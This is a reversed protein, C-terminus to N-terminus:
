SPKSPPCVTPTPEDLGGERYLYLAYRGVGDVGEIPVFAPYMYAMECGWLGHSTQDASFARYGVWTLLVWVAISLGLILKPIPPKRRRSKSSSTM